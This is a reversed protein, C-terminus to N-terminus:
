YRRYPQICQMQKPSLPRDYKPADDKLWAVVQDRLSKRFNSRLKDSMLAAINQFNEFGVADWLNRVRDPSVGAYEAVPAIREAIEAEERQRVEEARRAKFAEVKALVEPTADVTAIVAGGGYATSGTEIAKISQTAEDWVRMFFYSDHYGNNEFTSLCAGEYTRVIFLPSPGQFDRTIWDGDEHQCKRYGHNLKYFEAGEASPKAEYAITM